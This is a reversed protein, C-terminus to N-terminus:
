TIEVRRDPHSISNQAVGQFDTLKWPLHVASSNKGSAPVSLDGIM